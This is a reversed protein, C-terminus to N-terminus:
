ADIFPNVITVGRLTSGHALDESWLQRCGAQAAAEIIMADWISVQHELSTDVAACVLRADASVVPLKSLGEIVSAAIASEVAPRLKRTLVVFLELMVQTSVVIRDSTGDLVRAAIRQKNPESHDFRYAFVNTDVFVDSV